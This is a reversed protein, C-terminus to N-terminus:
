LWSIDEGTMAAHARNVVCEPRHNGGCRLCVQAIMEPRDLGSALVAELCRILMRRRHPSLSQIAAALLADRSGALRDILSAGADSLYVYVVRRDDPSPRRNVLGKGALRDVLKTAAPDSIALGDSLGGVSCQEHRALFDLCRFQAPTIAAHGNTALTRSVLADDIWRAFVRFLRDCPVGPHDSM